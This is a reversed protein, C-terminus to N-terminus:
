FFFCNGGGEKLLNVCLNLWNKTFDLFEQREMNDWDGYYYNMPKRGKLERVKSTKNKASVNYPPDTLVLDVKVGDDILKQLEVLCDGQILQCKSM